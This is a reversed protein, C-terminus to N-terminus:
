ELVPMGAPKDEQAFLNVIKAKAELDALYTKMAAGLQKDLMEKRIADRTVTPPAKILIHSAQASEPTAPTEGAAAVAENRATVKIIHFGFDTEIVPGIEGVKQSFAADEFPKVMQGRSFTGLDGGRKGSPCASKSEAMAAFNTGDLLQKRIADIEARAAAHAQGRTAVEADVAADIPPLKARVQTDVLKEILIEEAFEKRAAAEGMPAQRFLEDVTIGQQKAYPALREMAKQTDAEDTKLGLKKAENGLLNKAIFSQVIRREFFASAQAMQEPPIRDGQSALVMAVQKALEARTLKVDDVGAVVEAGNTMAVPMAFNVAAAPTAPTKGAASASSENNRNCATTSLGLLALLSFYVPLRM